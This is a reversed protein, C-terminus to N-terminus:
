NSVGEYGVPLFNWADEYIHAKLTEQGNIEFKLGRHAWGLLSEKLNYAEINKSVLKQVYESSRYGITCYAVVKHDKYIEKKSKFEEKSIAGPLTSVSREKLSRVDVLIVKESAAQWKLYDEITVQPATKFKVAIQDAMVQVTKKKNKTASQPNICSLAFFGLTLGIIIRMMSPNHGL